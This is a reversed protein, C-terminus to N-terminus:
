SLAPPAGVRSVAVCCSPTPFFYFPRSLLHRPALRRLVGVVELDGVQYCCVLLMSRVPCAADTGERKLRGESLKKIM